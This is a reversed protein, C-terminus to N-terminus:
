AHKWNQGSLIRSIQSSHVGLKRGLESQNLKPNDKAMAKIESVIKVSLKADKHNDGKIIRGQAMARRMNEKQDVWELNSAANNLKNGDIHDVQPYNNPNPCFARAVIRHVLRSHSKRHSIAITVGLYDRAKGRLSPRMITGYITKIRGLNSVQRNPFEDIPKWIEIM